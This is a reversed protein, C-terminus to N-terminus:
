YLTLSFGLYLTLGFVIVLAIWMVGTSKKKKVRALIMEILGIVGVGLLVKLIYQLGADSGLIGSSNAKSLMMFGTGLILLFMVRIIMQVIKAGKAKGGKILFIAVFFLVLALFWATMHAHQM